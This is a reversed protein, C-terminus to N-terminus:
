RYYYNYFRNIDFVLNICIPCPSIASSRVKATFYPQELCEHCTYNDIFFFPYQILPSHWFSSFQVPLRWYYHRGGSSRPDASQGESAYGRSACVSRSAAISAEAAVVLSPIDMYSASFNLCAMHDSWFALPSTALFLSLPNSASVSPSLGLRTSFLRDILLGSCVRHPLPPDFGMREGGSLWARAPCRRRRPWCGGWAGHPPTQNQRWGGDTIFLIRWKTYKYLLPEATNSLLHESVPMISM